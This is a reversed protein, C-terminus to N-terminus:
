GLALFFGIIRENKDVNDDNKKNTIKGSDDEVAALNEHGFIEKPKM